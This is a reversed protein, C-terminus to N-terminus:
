AQSKHLLRCARSRVHKAWAPSVLGAVWLAPGWIGPWVPAYGPVLVFLIFPVATMGIILANLWFGAHSNYWNMAIALAIGGATPLGPQVAPKKDTPRASTHRQV